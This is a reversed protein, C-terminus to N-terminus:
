LAVVNPNPATGMEHRRQQVTYNTTLISFRRRRTRVLGLYFEFFNLSM